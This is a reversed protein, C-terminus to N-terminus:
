KKIPFDKNGQAIGRRIVVVIVTLSAILSFINIALGIDM